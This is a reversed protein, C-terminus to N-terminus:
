STPTGPKSTNYNTRTQLEVVCRERWMERYANELHATFRPTDCLPSSQMRERQSARAEALFPLDAALSACKAIYGDESHAIWEPRGLYTLLSASVRSVHTQGALAVVPVGMWLAECTTTTGNYPFTDLAIDVGHYLGLHAAVSLEDSRLDLRDPAVGSRSFIERVGAVTETDALSRAKLLLRSSPLRVLLRAWLDLVAPNIKAFHNFSGFTIYGNKLAPLTSVAPADESPRYCSFTEPLRVLKESYWAETQGVPDSVADTIRCDIAALGTTNPYGLWTVQVPAPKRAFVLLRHRATHGALDVLIDIKDSRILEAVQTDDLRVIDRWQDSVARLRVTTADPVLVNSYCFVECRTRDHAALVPEIFYSVAHHIFDPSVYGIRLRRAPDPGVVTAPIANKLPEAHIRAWHKHEAFIEAAPLGPVFNLAYLLNSHTGPSPATSLAARFEKIAEAARGQARLARGLNDHAAPYAPRLRLAMELQKKAEGIRGADLFASGLVNHAEPRGPELAIARQFCTIAEDRLSLALLTVGFNLWIAANQPALESARQLSAAADAYRHLNKLANGLQHHAEALSPDLALARKFEV